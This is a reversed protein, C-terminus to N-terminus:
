VPSSWQVINHSHVPNPNSVPYTLIEYSMVVLLPWSRMVNCVESIDIPYLPDEWDTVPKVLRQRTDAQLVQCEGEEPHRLQGRGWSRAKRPILECCTFAQLLSASQSSIIEGAKVMEAIADCFVDNSQHQERCAAEYRGNYVEGNDNGLLPDVLCLIKQL